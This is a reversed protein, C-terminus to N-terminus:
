GTAFLTALAHQSPAHGLRAAVGSWEVALVPDGAKYADIANTFATESSHTAPADAIAFIPRVPDDM